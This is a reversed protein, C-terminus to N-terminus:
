KNKIFLKTVRIVLLCLIHFTIPTLAVAFGSFAIQNIDSAPIGKGSIADAFIIASYFTGLLGLLLSFKINRELKIEDKISIFLSHLLLFFLLWMFLATTEIFTFSNIFIRAFALM